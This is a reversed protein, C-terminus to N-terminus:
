GGVRTRRMRAVGLAGLGGLLLAAGAPLPVAAPPPVPAGTIEVSSLRENTGIERIFIFLGDTVAVPTDFLATIMGNNGMSVFGAFGGSTTGDLVGPTAFSENITANNNSGVLTTNSGVGGAQFVYSSAATLTSPDSANTGIVLGDFDFGTTNGGTETAVSSDTIKVSSITSLGLDGLAIAYGFEGAVNAEYGALQADSLTVAQAAAAPLLAALFVATRLM